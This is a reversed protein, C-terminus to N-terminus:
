SEPVYSEGLSAPANLRIRIRDTSVAALVLITLAYPLCTLLQSPIRLGLAQVTPELLSVAGFFYAGAMIRGPRWTGFVVLAIAIWGRGAIMGQSWLPTLVTSAYAGAFGAMAGGFLVAAFRIPVPSLGLSHAVQPNEGTVRIILGSKTNYLFWALLIGVGFALYVDCDRAFLVSGLVPISSLLPISIGALPVLTTGEYTHGLLASLGLGLIGVALGAAVQNAIFVLVLTAFVASLLMAVGGGALFGILHSGHTTTVMFAIAAALAMMGEVSLNLVGSKEAVLEGLAAFVLPTATSFATGLVFELAHM